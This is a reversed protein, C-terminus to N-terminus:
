FINSTNRRGCRSTTPILRFQRNLVGVRAREPTVLDRGVRGCLLKAGPGKDGDETQLRHQVHVARHGV